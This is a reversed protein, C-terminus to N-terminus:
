VKIQYVAGICSLLWNNNMLQNKKMNCKMSLREEEGKELRSPVPSLTEPDVGYEEMCKLTCKLTIPEGAFFLSHM